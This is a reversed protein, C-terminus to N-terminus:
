VQIEARRSGGAPKEKENTAGADIAAAAVGKDPHYQDARIADTRCYVGQVLAPYRLGFQECTRRSLTRSFVYVVCGRYGDYGQWAARQELEGLKQRKRKRSAKTKLAKRAQRVGNVYLTGPVANSASAFGQTEPIESIKFM